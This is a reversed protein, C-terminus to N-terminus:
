DDNIRRLIAAVPVLVRRGMRTAGLRGSSIEKRIHNESVGLAKATEMPSLALRGAVRHTDITFTKM